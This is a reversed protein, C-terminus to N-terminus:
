GKPEGPVDVYQDGLTDEVYLMKLLVVIMVTLPAAVFLGRFGFMDGLLVQAVLTLAPPLIVSQRQILPALIYGELMHLGLYLAAVLVMHMPSILLAILLSPVAAIWPGIYPVLELIGAIVGLVLALPIGIAWLGVTTSLGILIMLIVQGLLWWRLNFVVTDITEGARPRNPPPILHLLGTRYLGTEAAGFLGVFLIVLVGVFFNIVGALLGTVQSFHSGETWSNAAAPMQALLRQGWPYRELYTRLQELSQPLKQALEAAQTALRSWLLWGLGSALLILSVVVIALAVGYRVRTWRSLWDALSALFLGFLVGAFTELLIHIGWWLVYAVTALVLAILIAVVVRRAFDGLSLHSVDPIEAPLPPARKLGDRQPRDPM